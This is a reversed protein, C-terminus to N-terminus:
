DVSRMAVPTGLEVTRSVTCLREHAAKIADEVLGQARRGEDTDPFRVLFDVEIADLRNGTDDHVRDATVDVDFTEPESHRTTLMDVDIASCAGIAAMMLEVPTFDGDVGSGISVTGGRENTATLRKATTRAISVTTPRRTQDTM